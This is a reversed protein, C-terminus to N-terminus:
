ELSNDAQFNKFNNTRPKWPVLPSFNNRFWVLDAISIGTALIGTTMSFGSNVSVCRNREEFGVLQQHPFPHHTKILIHFFHLLLTLSLPIRNPYTIIELKEKLFILTGMFSSLSKLYCFAATEQLAEEYPM